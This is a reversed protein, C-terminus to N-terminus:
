SSFERAFVVVGSPQAGCYRKHVSLSVVQADDRYVIGNLADQVARALKDIDPKVTPYRRKVTKPRPLYFTLRMEVAGSMPEGDYERAEASIRDSWRKLSGPPRCKRAIDASEIM